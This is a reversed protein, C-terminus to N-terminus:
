WWIMSQQEYFSYLQKKNETMLDIEAIEKKIVERVKRAGSKMLERSEKFKMEGELRKAEIENWMMRVQEDQSNELDLIYQKDVIDNSREFWVLVKTESKKSVINFEIRKIEKHLQAVERQLCEAQERVKSPVEVLEELKSYRKDELRHIFNEIEKMQIYNYNLAAAAAVACGEVFVSNNVMLTASKDEM